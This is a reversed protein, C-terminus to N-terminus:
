ALRKAEDGSVPRSLRRKLKFIEMKLAIDGEGAASDPGLAALIDSYILMAQEGANRPGIRAGCEAYANMVAELVKGMFPAGLDGHGTVPPSESKPAAAPSDEFMPGQGTLLWDSRINLKRVLAESEERTLKKVVGSSLNKVRQLKVGMIEALDQQRLHAERLIRRILESTM